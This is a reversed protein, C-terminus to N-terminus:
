DNILSTLLFSLDIAEQKQVLEKFLEICNAITLVGNKIEAKLCKLSEKKNDKDHIISKMMFKYADSLTEIECGYFLIDVHEVNKWYHYGYTTIIDTYENRSRHIMLSDSQYTVNYGSEELENVQWCGHIKIKDGDNNWAFWNYRSCKYILEYDNNFDEEGYNFDKRLQELTAGREDNYYSLWRKLLEKKTYKKEQIFPNVQQVSKDMDSTEIM